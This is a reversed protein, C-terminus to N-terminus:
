HVKRMKGARWEASKQPRGAANYRDAWGRHQPGRSWQKMRFAEPPLRMASTKKVPAAPVKPRPPVAAKPAKPKPPAAPITTVIVKLSSISKPLPKERSSGKGRKAPAKSKPLKKPATKKPTSKKVAPKAAPKRAAPKAKGKTKAPPRAAAPKAAAKKPATKKKAPQVKRAASKKSKM